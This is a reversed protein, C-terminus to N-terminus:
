KQPNASAASLSKQSFVPTPYTKTHYILKTTIVLHSILDHKIYVRNYRPFITICPLHPAYRKDHRNRHLRTSHCKRPHRPNRTRNSSRPHLRNYSPKTVFSRGYLFLRPALISTLKKLRFCVAYTGLVGAKSAAYAVAGHGGQLGLLSSLNIICPNYEEDEGKGENSNTKTKSIYRQRLLFRTGIMLSTLNTDIIKQVDEQPMSTFLRNQTIGACNVLVDIRGSSDDATPRAIHKAFISSTWFNPTTIDDSIYSHNLTPPPKLTSIASKLSDESRSILTCRYSHQAFHQAISLGIGRSGGTILVHRPLSMSISLHIPPTSTHILSPLTSAPAHSQHVRQTPHLLKGTTSPGELVTSNQSLALSDICSICITRYRQNKLFRKACPITADVLDGPVHRKVEHHSIEVRSFTVAHNLM